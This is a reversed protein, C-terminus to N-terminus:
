LAQEDLLMAPGQTSCKPLALPQYQQGFIANSLVSTSSAASFASFSKFANMRSRYSGVPDRPWKLSLFSPGHHVDAIRVSGHRDCFEICEHILADLEPM